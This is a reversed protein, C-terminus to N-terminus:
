KWIQNQYLKQLEYGQMEGNNHLTFAARSICGNFNM